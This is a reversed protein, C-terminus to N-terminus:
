YLWIVLEFDDVIYFAGCGACCLKPERIDNIPQTHGIDFFDEEFEYLGKIYSRLAALKPMYWYQRSKLHRALM